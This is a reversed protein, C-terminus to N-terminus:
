EAVEKLIEATGLPGPLSAVRGGAARVTEVVAARADSPCAVWRAVAGNLMSIDNLHDGIALVDDRALGRSSMYGQLVNGKGMSDPLVVVWGGNRTISIRPLGALAQALQASFADVRSEDGEVCFVTHEAGLRVDVDYQGRWSELRGSLVSQVSAHFERLVTQAISNWPELAVYRGDQGRCFIFAESCLMAAPLHRLGCAESCRLINEQDERSRGSNTCWEVGSHGLRNLQEIVGAHFFTKDADYDVATGDFDLCVLRISM